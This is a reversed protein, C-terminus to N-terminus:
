GKEKAKTEATAKEVGPGELFWAGETAETDVVMPNFYQAHEGETNCGNNM